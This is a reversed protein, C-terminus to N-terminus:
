RMFPNRTVRSYSNNYLVTRLRAPAAKTRLNQWNSALRKDDARLGFVAQVHNEMRYVIDFRKKRAYCVFM